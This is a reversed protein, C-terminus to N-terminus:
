VGLWLAASIIAYLLTVVQSYLAFKTSEVLLGLLEFGDRSHRLAASIRAGVVTCVLM